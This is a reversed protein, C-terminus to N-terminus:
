AMILEQPSCQTHTHTHTHTHANAANNIGQTYMALPQQAM